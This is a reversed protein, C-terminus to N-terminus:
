EAQAAVAQQALPIGNSPRDIAAQRLTDVDPPLAALWDHNFVRQQERPVQDAPVAIFGPGPEGTAKVVLSTLAPLDHILCYSQVPELCQGLGATMMGTHKSLLDYTITQRHTAAFTLLSWIQAAREYINM